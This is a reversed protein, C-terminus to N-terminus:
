EVAAECARRISNSLEYPVKARETSNKMGQTGTDSGAPAAEHCTDGPSCRPRPTWADPWEGWLATPKMRDDGYQCYTVIEPGPVPEMFKLTLLGAAPNEMWWYDPDLADIVDLAALVLACGERAEESAPTRPGYLPDPSDNPNHIWRDTKGAMTFATCPPSAWVVDPRWEPDVHLALVSKPNDALSRVDLTLEADFAPDLEVGVVDHGHDRFAQTASGTGAYLDLVRM